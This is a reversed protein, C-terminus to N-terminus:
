CRKRWAEYPVNVRGDVVKRGFMEPSDRHAFVDEMRRDACMVRAGEAWVWPSLVILQSAKWHLFPHEPINIVDGRQLQDHRM